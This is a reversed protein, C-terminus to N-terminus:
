QFQERKVMRTWAIIGVLRLNEGHAKPEPEAKKAKIWSTWSFSPCRKLFLKCFLQKLSKKISFVRTKKKGDDYWGIIQEIHSIFESKWSRRRLSPWLSLNTAGWGPLNPNQKMLFFSLFFIPFQSNWICYVNWRSYILGKKWWGRTIQHLKYCAMRKLNDTMSKSGGQKAVRVLRRAPKVSPCSQCCAKLWFLQLSQFIRTSVMAALYLLYM